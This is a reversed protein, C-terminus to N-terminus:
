KQILHIILFFLIQIMVSSSDSLVVDSFMILFFLIQIMVSSSDSLVVDSFEDCGMERLFLRKYEIPM